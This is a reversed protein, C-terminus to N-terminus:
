DRSIVQSKGTTGQFHPSPSQGRSQRTIHNFYQQKRHRNKIQSLCLCDDVGIGTVASIPASILDSTGLANMFTGSMGFCALAFTWFRMSLFPLWGEGDLDGTAASLDADIAGDAEIDADFDADANFDFDKDLSIDKDFDDNGGGLVISAMILIGGLLFAGIYFPLM